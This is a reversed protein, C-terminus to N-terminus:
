EGRKPPPAKRQEWAEQRQKEIETVGRIEAEDRAKKAVHARLEPAVPDMEAGM